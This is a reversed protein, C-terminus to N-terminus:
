FVAKTTFFPGFLAGKLHLPAAVAGQAVTNPPEGGSLIPRSQHQVLECYRRYQATCPVPLFIDEPGIGILAADLSSVAMLDIM